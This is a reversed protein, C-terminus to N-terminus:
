INNMIKNVQEPTLDLRLPVAVIPSTGPRPRKKTEQIQYLIYELQNYKQLIEVVAQLHCLYDLETEHRFPRRGLQFPLINLYINRFGFSDVRNFDVDYCAGWKEFIVDRLAYGDFDQLAEQAEREKQKAQVNEKAKQFAEMNLMIDEDDEDDGEDDDRSSSQALLACHFHRQSSVDSTITNRKISLPPCCRSSRSFAVPRRQPLQLASICPAAVLVLFICFLSSRATM